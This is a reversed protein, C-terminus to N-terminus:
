IGHALRAALAPPLGREQMEAQTQEIPYPV